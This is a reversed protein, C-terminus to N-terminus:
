GLLKKITGWTATPYVSMVTGVRWPDSNHFNWRSYIISVNRDNKYEIHFEHLSISELFFGGNM